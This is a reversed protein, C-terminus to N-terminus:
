EKMRDNILERMRDNRSEKMRDNRLKENRWEWLRCTERGQVQRSLSVTGGDAVDQQLGPGVGAETSPGLLEAGQVNRCVPTEERGGGWSKGGGKREREDRQERGGERWGQSEGERM